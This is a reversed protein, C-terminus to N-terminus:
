RQATVTTALEERKSRVYYYVSAGTAILFALFGLMFPWKPNLTYLVGSSLSGAIGGLSKMGNFYGMTLNSDKGEATRALLNQTLPASVAFLAFYLINALVFPVASDLLLVVALMSCACLLNVLIWSRRIDTNVVLWLGLSGNAALSVLGIIGKITGNYGSSLDLQARLYYNFSGDFATNGLNTLAAILFVAILLPTMIHKGAIFAAVPNAERLLHGIAIGRQTTDRDDRCIVFLLVGSASLVAVQAIMTFAIGFEGLIGGVFYGFSSAVMQITAIITLYRGRLDAPTTNVVYTLCATFVGSTFIGAFMRAGVMARETDALWFLAQGIAYGLSCILIVTRSSVFTILKGWFPSVLFNVTMMSGLAVGFMYDGFGRDKIMTPTVAHAFSAALNLLVCAMFFLNAQRRSHM